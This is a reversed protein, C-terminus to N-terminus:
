LENTPKSFYLDIGPPTSPASSMVKDITGSKDSDLEIILEMIEEDNLGAQFRNLGDRFEGQYFLLCDLFRLTSLASSNQRSFSVVSIQGDGDGSDATASGSDFLEFLQDVLQEVTPEEKNRSLSKM